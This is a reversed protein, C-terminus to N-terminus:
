LSGNKEVILIWVLGHQVKSAHGFDNGSFLRVGKKIKRFANLAHESRMECACVPNLSFYILQIMVALGSMAIRFQKLFFVALHDYFEFRYKPFAVILSYVPQKEILDFLGEFISDFDQTFNGHAIGRLMPERQM